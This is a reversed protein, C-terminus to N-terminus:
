SLDVPRPQDTRPAVRLDVGGAETMTEHLSLLFNQRPRDVAQQRPLDPSHALTLREITQYLSWFASLPLPATELSGELYTLHTIWGPLYSATLDGLGAHHLHLHSRGASEDSEAAATEVTLTLHTLPEDPFQWTLDLARGPEVTGIHSTCLYGDGHDVVLKDGSTFGGSRPRGLWEPLHEVSTLHRWVEAAPSDLRWTLSVAGADVTGAVLSM